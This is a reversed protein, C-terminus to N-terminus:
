GSVLVAVLQGQGASCDLMALRTSWHVNFHAKSLLTYEEFHKVICAVVMRRCQLQLCMM